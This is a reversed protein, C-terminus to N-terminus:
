EKSYKRVTSVLTDTIKMIRSSSTNFLVYTYTNSKAYEFRRLYTETELM